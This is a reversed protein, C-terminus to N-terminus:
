LALRTFIRECNAILSTGSSSPHCNSYNNEVTVGSSLPALM